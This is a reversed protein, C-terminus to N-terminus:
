FSIDLGLSFSTVNPYIQPATGPSDPSVYEMEPDFQTWNTIIFPNNVDAYVRVRNLIHRPVPLTYGLTINRCRIYYIDKYCYDGWSYDSSIVSPYSGQHDHFWFKEYDRHTGSLNVVTSTSIMYTAERLRDTQGYFYINLDFNKYKVTNNFGVNLGPDGTGAYVRDYDNIRGDPVGDEGSIDKLKVQGPLLSKQHEPPAEGPQLLGDSLYTFVARIPDNVSQYVAPKWNPDREKWRDHYSAVTLDTTWTLDKGAINVTNLTLEVGRGQTKGINAAIQTIENYSLLSKEKVLLDSITRDYYELTANVRNNFFGLDLGINFESTTEWTLKPNGLMNAYVGLYGAEGFPYNFGPAYSDYTRNGVSSNGTEGYSFRLKGNSLVSSLSSMFAEDSFRWGLSVSPFYGWRYDPNFNSDGDARITATLLYKGLYSYNLRGFYSGLASKGASSGVTPKAYGGAALNNYLFVDLLFDQNGANFGEGNFQQWSYGALATFSHGSIEKSYTATLDMLYDINDSERIAALGNTAAGYMTTRPLYNKRKANRRDIGLVGKLKLGKLPEAEVYASGLLRDKETKDTIELLSVPNPVTGVLIDTAYSGDANYVPVNPAYGIAATIIGARESNYTGLPVNDYANRSINLSVGAKVYRSIQQDLNLRATLRTMNNNKIIGEQGFYNLSALYQTSENGGNMSINHSHQFGQRSIEDFWRTTQAAAIDAESFRPVFAPTQQGPPLSIYDKYVDLGNTKLYIEYNQRTNMRMYDQADYFDLGESMRQVSANGSYTVNIQQSKGRKTTVIIVGHGARSGYIATSSADKLVEISEIDNPNLTELINDMSGADYRNGSGPNTTRQVPFGDIIVLPENGAGTSTAGRIRFTAGAGPQASGQTVQMGAAKGALAHSVTSYTQVPMEAVKVSSVAGTLDRKKQTGYGVVVVEELAQM